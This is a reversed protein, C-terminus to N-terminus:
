SSASNVSSVAQHIPQAAPARGPKMFPREIFLYSATALMMALTLAAGMLLTFQRITLMTLDVGVHSALSAVSFLTMVHFLYFSYSIAGLAVFPRLTLIRPRAVLLAAFLVTVSLWHQLGYAPVIQWHWFTLAVAGAAVILAARRMGVSLDRKMLLAALAGSVFFAWASKQTLAVDGFALVTLAALMGLPYRRSRVFVIPLAMYYRWEYALTWTVGLLRAMDFGNIKPIGNLGFLFIPPIAAPDVSASHTLCMAIFLAAGAAVVYAPMIRRVRKAFFSTWDVKDAFLLKDAFLMGTTCFFLQVGFAGLLNFLPHVEPIFYFVKPTVQVNILTLPAHNLAVLGAAVGRLGDLWRTNDHADSTLTPFFRGLM